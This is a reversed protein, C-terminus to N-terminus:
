GFKLGKYEKLLRKAHERAKEGKVSGLTRLLPWGNFLIFEDLKAEMAAMPVTLNQRHQDEFYRLIMEIVRYKTKQEDPLLYNTGVTVDKQTPVGRKGTHYTLGMDPKTVDARSVILEASTMPKRAATAVWLMKNEISAFFHEAAEGSGKYDPCLTCLRKVERYANTGSARIEDVIDRLEAVLGPDDPEKLRRKDIVFGKTAFQVLLATAWKRFLVGAASNVRYGVYFAVDLTYHLTERRVDRNGEKQVVPFKGTTAAQLEGDAVFKKIHDSVTDTDVGFMQALQKQTFWPQDGSYRLEHHVGQDDVYILFRDGTDDEILHVPDDDAAVALARGPLESPSVQAFRGLAEDFEMDLKLPKEYTKKPRTM